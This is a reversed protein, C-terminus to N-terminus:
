RSSRTGRVVAARNMAEEGFQTTEGGAEVLVTWAPLYAGLLNAVAVARRHSLSDNYGSRGSTDAYGTVTVVVSFAELWRAADAIASEAASDIVDSDFDFLFNARLERPGDEYVILPPASTDVQFVPAKKAWEALASDLADSLTAEVAQVVPAPPKACGGIFASATIAVVALVAAALISIAGNLARDHATTRM